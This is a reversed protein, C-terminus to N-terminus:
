GILGRLTLIMLAAVCTIGLKKTNLRMEGKLIEYTFFLVVIKAAIFGM